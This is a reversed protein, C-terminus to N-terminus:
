YPIAESEQKMRYSEDEPSSTVVVQGKAKTPVNGARRGEWAMAIKEEATLAVGPVDAYERLAVRFATIADQWRRQMMHLEGVRLQAQAKFVLPVTNTRQMSEYITIAKEAKGEHAYSEALYLMGTHAWSTEPYLRILDRYIRQAQKWERKRRHLSGLHVYGQLRYESRPHTEIVDRFTFIADIDQGLKLQCLGLRFTAANQYTSRPADKRVKEYDMIAQDFLGQHELALGRLYRVWYLKRKPYKDIIQSTSQGASVYDEAHYLEYAIDLANKIIQEESIQPAAMEVSDNGTLQPNNDYDPLDGKDEPKNPDGGVATGGEPNFSPPPPAEASFLTGSLAASALLAILFPQFRM